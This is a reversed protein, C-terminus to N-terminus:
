VTIDEKIKEFASDKIGSIKMIDRITEFRGHVERYRIIDDAKAEGIGRLTMLEERSASNLNVKSKIGGSPASAAAKAEEVNLVEIKMGDSIREAMNLSEVAARETFGGAKEVAQFIRSGEEMEYVGPSVVEGCIYVYFNQSRREKADASQSQLIESSVSPELLDMTETRTGHNRSYSYCIGGTLVLLVIVATRISRYNM